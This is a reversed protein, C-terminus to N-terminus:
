KYVPMYTHRILVKDFWGSPGMPDGPHGKLERPGGAGGKSGRLGTFLDRLRM